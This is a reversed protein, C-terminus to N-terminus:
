ESRISETNGEAKKLAAQSELQELTQKLQEMHLVADPIKENLRTYLQAKQRLTECDSLARERALRILETQERIKSLGFEGSESVGAERFAEEKASVAIAIHEREARALVADEEAKERALNMADEAARLREEDPTGISKQAKKPHKVSGCVPCPNGETLSEALIGAQGALYAGLVAHYEESRRDYEKKDQKLREVAALHNTSAEELEEYKRVANDFVALSRDAEKVAQEAHLYLVDAGNVEKLAAQDKDTEQKLRALEEEAQRAQKELEAASEFAKKSREALISHEAYRPLSRMRERLLKKM